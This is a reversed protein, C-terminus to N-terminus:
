HCTAFFNDQTATATGDANVTVHSSNHVMFNNGPGPGTVHVNNIITTTEGPGVTMTTTSDFQTRFTTGSVTGTGSADQLNSHITTEFNGSASTTTHILLHTEGTFAILEGTCPNLLTPNFPFTLNTTTSSAQADVPRSDAVVALTVAAIGFLTTAFSRKM